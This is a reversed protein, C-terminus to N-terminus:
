ATNWRAPNVFDPADIAFRTFDIKEPATHFDTMNQRLQAANNVGVLVIGDFDLQRAFAFAGQVPTLGCENLFDLYARIKPLVPRFYGPIRSAEMLLLGQLFISRIHVEVERGLLNELLGNRVARQDFVNLPLQVLDPQLVAMAEEAEQQDYVSFGIKRVLGRDRAHMLSAALFRGGPATLDAAHHVLLGYVANKGLRVLSRELSSRASCGDAGPPTKTVIDFADDNDQVRGLIEECPGYSPATDLCKIGGEKAADLIRRVEESTTMGAINSIGYDLGFQATGLGLKM